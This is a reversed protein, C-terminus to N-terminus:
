LILYQIEREAILALKGNEYSRKEIWNGNKDYVFDNKYIYERGDFFYTKTEIENGYSDYTTYSKSVIKEKDESESYIIKNEENYEAYKREYLTGDTLTRKLELQCGQQNYIWTSKGWSHKMHKYCLDDLYEFYKGESEYGIYFEALKRGQKDFQFHCQSREKNNIFYYEIYQLGDENYEYEYRHETNEYYEKRRILWGKENYQCEEKFPCKKGNGNYTINSLLQGAKDYECFTRYTVRENLPKLLSKKGVSYHKRKILRGQLDFYAKNQDVARLMKIEGKKERAEYFFLLISAVKSHADNDKLNLAKEAFIEHEM